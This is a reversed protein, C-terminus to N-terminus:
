RKSLFYDLALIFAGVWAVAFLAFFVDSFVRDWIFFSNELIDVM